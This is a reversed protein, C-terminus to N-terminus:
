STTCLMLTEVALAHKDQISLDEIAPTTRYEQQAFAIRAVDITM